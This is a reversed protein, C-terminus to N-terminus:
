NCIIGSIWGNGGYKGCLDQMDYLPVGHLMYWALQTQCALPMANPPVISDVAWGTGGVHCSFHRWPNCAM